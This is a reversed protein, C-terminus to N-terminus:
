TSPVSGPTMNAVAIVLACVCVGTPQCFAGGWGTGHLSLWPRWIRRGMQKPPPSRMPGTHAQVEKMTKEVEEEWPLNLLHCTGAGTVQLCLPPRAVSLGTTRDGQGWFM